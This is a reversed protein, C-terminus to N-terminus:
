LLLTIKCTVFVPSGDDWYWHGNTKTMGLFFNGNSLTKGDAMNQLLLQAQATKAMVLNANTNKERCKTLAEQKSLPREIMAVCGNEDLWSFGPPCVSICSGQNFSGSKESVAFWKNSHDTVNKLHAM